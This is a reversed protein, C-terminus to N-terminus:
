DGKVADPWSVSRTQEKVGSGALGGPAPRRAPRNMKHMVWTCQIGTTEATTATPVSQGASARRAEAEGRRM